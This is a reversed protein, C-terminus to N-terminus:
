HPFPTKIFFPLNNINDIRNSEAATDNEPQEPSVVVVPVYEEVLSLVEPLVEPAVERVAKLVEKLEELTPASM